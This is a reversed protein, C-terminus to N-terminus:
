PMRARLVVTVTLPWGLTGGRPSPDLTELLAAAQVVCIKHWSSVEPATLIETPRECTAFGFALRTVGRLVPDGDIEVTPVGDVGGTPNHRITTQSLRPDGSAPATSSIAAQRWIWGSPPIQEATAPSPQGTGSTAALPTGGADGSLYATAHIIFVSSGGGSFSVKFLQRCDGILLSEGYEPIDSAPTDLRLTIGSPTSTISSYRWDARIPDASFSATHLAGDSFQLGGNAPLYQEASRRSGSDGEIVPTTAGCPAIAARSIESHLIRQLLQAKDGLRELRDVTTAAQLSSGHLQVVASVVIAGLALSSLLEILTAGRQKHSSSVM